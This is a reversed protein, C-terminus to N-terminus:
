RDSYLRVAIYRDNSLIYMLIIQLGYDIKSVWHPNWLSVADDSNVWYISSIMCPNRDDSAWFKSGEWIVLELQYRITGSKSAQYPKTIVWLWNGKKALEGTSEQHRKLQWLSYLADLKSPVRDPRARDTSFRVCVLCFCCSVADFLMWCCWVADFLMLCCCSEESRKMQLGVFLGNAECKKGGDEVGKARCPRHGACQVVARQLGLWHGLAADPARRACSLLAAIKPEGGPPWFFSM